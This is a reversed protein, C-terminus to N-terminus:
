VIKGESPDISRENEPINGISPHIGPFLCAYLDKTIARVAAPVPLNTYQAPSIGPMISIKYVYRDVPNFGTWPDKKGLGYKDTGGIHVPLIDCGSALAMRAAGKKFVPKGTRPTRTGEPFVILCNGLALSESCARFLDDYDLSNLIYLQRVVGGAISRKVYANVICDANPLLSLLMVVDLLSPHNAVIIKSKMNRFAERDPVELRMVGIVTMLRVFFRMSRSILRRGYKRFREKPHFLLRMIPFVLIILLVTSFGFYFFSFWKVFVRYAYLVRNSVPPLEPPIVM